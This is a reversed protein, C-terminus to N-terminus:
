RGRLIGSLLGGYRLSGLPPNSSKTSSQAVKLACAPMKSKKGGVCRNFEAAIREAAEPDSVPVVYGSADDRRCLRLNPGPLTKLQKAQAPSLFDIEVKGARIAKLRGPVFVGNARACADQLESATPRELGLSKASLKAGMKGKATKEYCKAGVQTSRCVDKLQSAFFPVRTSVAPARPVLTNLTDVTLVTSAVLGQARARVARAAARGEAKQKKTKKAM